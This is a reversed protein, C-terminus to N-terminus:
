NNGNIAFRRSQVVMWIAELLSCKWFPRYFVHLIWMVAAFFFQIGKSLNRGNLWNYTKIRNGNITFRRRRVVMWIAELLSYKWFPRYFVQLIWMVAVFFFQIGKDRLFCIWFIYNNLNFSNTFVQHLFEYESFPM